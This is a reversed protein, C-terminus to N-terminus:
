NIPESIPDFQQYSKGDFTFTTTVVTNSTMSHIRIDRCGNTKDDLVVLDHAATALVLQFGEKMRRFVWFPNVNAGRMGNTGMVVLDGVNRAALHIESASFWDAPPKPGGIGETKRKNAVHKDDGLIELVSEPLKVPHDVQSQEATFDTQESAANDQASRPQEAGLLLCVTLVLLSVGNPYM